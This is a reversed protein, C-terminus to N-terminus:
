GGIEEVGHAVVGFEPNGDGCGTSSVALVDFNDPSKMHPGINEVTEGKFSKDDNSDEEHAVNLDADNKKGHKHDQFDVIVCDDEHRRSLLSVQKFHYGDVIAPTIRVESPLFCGLSLFDATAESVPLSEWVQDVPADRFNM